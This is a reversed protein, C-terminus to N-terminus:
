VFLRLKHIPEGHGRPLEANGGAGEGVQSPAADEELEPYTFRIKYVGAEHGATRLIFNYVRQTTVVNMNTVAGPEIPKIFLFRKSQDPVAQWAVSDGIAVTDIHEDDGFMIMTSVGLAGDVVVVNDRQFAVTRIRADQRLPHPNEEALGAGCTGMLALAVLTAKMM